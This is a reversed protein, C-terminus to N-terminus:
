IGVLPSTSDGRLCAEPCAQLLKKENPRNLHSFKNVMPLVIGQAPTTFPIFSIVLPCAKLVRYKKVTTEMYGTAENGVALFGTYIDVRCAIPFHNGFYNYQTVHAALTIITGPDEGAEHYKM